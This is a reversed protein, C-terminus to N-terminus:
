VTGERIAKDQCRACRVSWATEDLRMADIAQGCDRCRGYTGKDFSKVVGDVLDLYRRLRDIPREGPKNEPGIRIDELRVDLGNMLKELRRALELGKDLCRRKWRRLNEPDRLHSDAACPRAM